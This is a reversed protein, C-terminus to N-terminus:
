TSRFSTSLEVMRAQRWMTSRPSAASQPGSFRCASRSQSSRSAALWGMSLHQLAHRRAERVAQMWRRQRHQQILRQRRCRQKCPHMCAHAHRPPMAVCASQTSAHLEHRTHRSQASIFALLGVHTPAHMRACTGAPPSLLSPCAASATAPRAPPRARPAAARRTWRRCHPSEARACSARGRAMGGGRMSKMVM